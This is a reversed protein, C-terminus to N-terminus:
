PFNEKKPTFIFNIKWIIESNAYEASNFSYFVFKIKSPFTIEEFSLESVIM